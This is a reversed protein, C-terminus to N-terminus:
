PADKALTATLTWWAEALRRAGADSVLGEATLMGPAAVEGDRGIAIRGRDDRALIAAADFLIGGEAAVQRRLMQNVWTRQLNIGGTPPITMMIPARAIRTGGAMATAYAAYALRPDRPSPGSEMVVPRSGLPLGVTTRLRSYTTNPLEIPYAAPIQVAGEGTGVQRLTRIEERQIGAIEAVEADIEFVGHYTTWEVEIVRSSPLDLPALSFAMADVAGALGHRAVASRMGDIRNAANRQSGVPYSGMGGDAYWEARAFPQRRLRWRERDEREMDALGRLLPSHGDAFLYAVRLRRARELDGASLTALATGDARDVVLSARTAAAASTAAGAPAPASEAATAAAAVICCALTRRLDSM